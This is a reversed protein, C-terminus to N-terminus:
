REVQLQLTYASHKVACIHLTRADIVKTDNRFFVPLNRKTSSYVNKWSPEIKKCLLEVNQLLGFAVSTFVYKLPFNRQMSHLFMM